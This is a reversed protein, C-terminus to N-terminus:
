GTFNPATNVPEATYTNTFTVQVAEFVVTPSEAEILVTVPGPGTGLTAAFTNPPPGPEDTCPFRLVGIVGYECTWAVDTAGGTDIETLTCTSQAAPFVSSRLAWGSELFPYYPQWGQTDGAAVTARGQADFGLRVYQPLVPDDPTCEVQVVTGPSPEGVVHTMVVSNQSDMAIAVATMTAPYKLSASLTSVAHASPAPTIAAYATLRPSAFAPELSPGKMM